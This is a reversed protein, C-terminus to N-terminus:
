DSRGHDEMKIRLEYKNVFETWFERGWGILAGNSFVVPTLEDDTIGGRWSGDTWYYFVEISTGDKGSHMASRYPNNASGYSEQGMVGHVEAKTMGYRLHSLNIRNRQIFKGASACGFLFIFAVCNVLDRRTM